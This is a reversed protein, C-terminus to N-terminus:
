FYFYEPLNKNEGDFIIIKQFFLKGLINTDIKLIIKRRGQGVPVTTNREFFKLGYHNKFILILLITQLHQPDV